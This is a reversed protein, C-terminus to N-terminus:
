TFTYVHGPTETRQPGCTAFDLKDFDLIFALGVKQFHSIVNVHVFLLVFDLVLSFMVLCPCPLGHLHVSHNLWGYDLIRRPNGGSDLM